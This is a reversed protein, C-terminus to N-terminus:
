NRQEPTEPASQGTGGPPGELGIGLQSPPLIDKRVADVRQEYSGATNATPAAADKTSGGTCGVSVLVSVILLERAIM